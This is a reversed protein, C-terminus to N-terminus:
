YKINLTSTGTLLSRGTQLLGTAGAVRGVSIVAVLVDTLGHGPGLGPGPTPRLLAVEGGDVVPCLILEDASQATALSEPQPPPPAGPVEGPRVARGPVPVVPVSSFWVIVELVLVTQLEVSLPGGPIVVM